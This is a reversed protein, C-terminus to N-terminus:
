SDRSSDIAVVMPDSEETLYDRGPFEVHLHGESDAELAFSEINRALLSLFEPEGEIRLAEGNDPVDIVIEGDSRRVVIRSLSRSYPSPDPVETLLVTGDGSHLARGFAALDSRTGSLELEGTGDHRLVKLAM